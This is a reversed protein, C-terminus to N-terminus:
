PRRIFVIMASHSIEVPTLPIGVVSTNPMVSHARYQIEVIEARDQEALWNNVVESLRETTRAAFTAIGLHSAPGLTPEAGRTM